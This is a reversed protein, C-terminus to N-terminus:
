PWPAASDQPNSPADDATIRVRYVGDPVLGTDWELTAEALDEKLM